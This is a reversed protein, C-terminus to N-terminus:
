GNRTVELLRAMHPYRVRLFSEVAMNVIRSRPIGESQCIDGLIDNLDEPLSVSIIINKGRSRKM